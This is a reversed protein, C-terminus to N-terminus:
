GHMPDIPSGVPSPSDCLDLPSPPDLRLPKGSVWGPRYRSGKAEREESPELLVGSRPTPCREGHKATVSGVKWRIWHGADTPRHCSAHTRAISLSCMM